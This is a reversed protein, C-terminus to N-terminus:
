FKAKSYIRECIQEEAKSLRRIGEVRIYFTFHEQYYYANFGGFAMSTSPNKVGSVNFITFFNDRKICYGCVLISDIGKQDKTYNTNYKFPEYNIITDRLEESNTSNLDTTLNLKLGIPSDKYKGKKLIKFNTKFSDLQIFNKSIPDIIQVGITDFTITTKTSNEVMSKSISDNTLVTETNINKKLVFEILKNKYLYFGHPIKNDFNEQKGISYDLLTNVSYAYNNYNNKTTKCSYLIILTALILRAKNICNKLPQLM